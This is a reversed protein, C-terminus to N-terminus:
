KMITFRLQLNKNILTKDFTYKVRRINDDNLYYRRNSNLIKISDFYLFTHKLMLPSNCKIKLYGSKNYAQDFNKEKILIM